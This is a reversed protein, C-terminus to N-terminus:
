LILWTIRARVSDFEDGAREQFSLVYNPGLVLSIQEVEIEDGQPDGHYLSKLVVFIYEDYDELKPRQDTHLIDEVVLPHLGFREGLVELVEAQHLGDVNVWIVASDGELVPCEAIAEIQMEQVQAEDYRIVTIRAKAAEQEGV